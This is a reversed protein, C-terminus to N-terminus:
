MMLNIGLMHLRVFDRHFRKLYFFFLSKSVRIVTFCYYKADAHLILVKSPTSFPLPQNPDKLQKIILTHFFSLSRRNKSNGNLLIFIKNANLQFTLKM